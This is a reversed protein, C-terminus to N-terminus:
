IQTQGMDESAFMLRQKRDSFSTADIVRHKWQLAEPTEALPEYDAGLFEKDWQNLQEIASEDLTTPTSLKLQLNLSIRETALDLNVVSSGTLSAFPRVPLAGM